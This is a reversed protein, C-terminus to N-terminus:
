LSYGLVIDYIALFLFVENLRRMNVKIYSKKEIKVSQSKLWLVLM